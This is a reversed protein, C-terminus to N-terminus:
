YGDVGGRARTNRKYDHQSPVYQLKRTRLRGNYDSENLQQLAARATLQTSNWNEKRWKNEAHLKKEAKHKQADTEEHYIVCPGKHDYRFAGYFQLATYKASRDKKVGEDYRENDKCWVRQMGRQEGVRAPTEDTFVVNRFDFGLGDGYEYRDPNHVLAWKYREQEQEPTLHPKWGPRRQAYGANYMVNQHLTVSIKPLGQNEFDGDAIAQWSEKERTNQTSTTIKIILDQQEQSLKPKHGRNSPFDYCQPDTICTSLELAREKVKALRGNKAEFTPMTYTHPPTRHPQKSCTSCANQLQRLPSHTGDELVLKKTYDRDIGVM